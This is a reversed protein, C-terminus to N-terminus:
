LHSTTTFQRLLYHCSHLEEFVKSLASNIVIFSYLLAFDKKKKSITKLVLHNGKIHTSSNM